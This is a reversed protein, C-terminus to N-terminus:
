LFSSILKIDFIYVNSTLWEDVFFRKDFLEMELCSRLSQPISDTTSESHVDDDTNSSINFKIMAYDINLIQNEQQQKLEENIYLLDSRTFIVPMPPCSFKESAVLIPMLLVYGHLPKSMKKLIEPKITRKNPIPPTPEIPLVYKILSQNSITSSSNNESTTLVRGNFSTIPLVYIGTTDISWILCPRRRGGVDPAKKKKSSASPISSSTSTSSSSDSWSMAGVLKELNAELAVQM